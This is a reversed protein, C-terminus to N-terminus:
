QFHQTSGQKNVDITSKYKHKQKLFLMPTLTAVVEKLPTWIFNIAFVKNNHFCHRGLNNQHHWLILLWAFGLSELILNWSDLNLIWSELILKWSDLNLFLWSWSELSLIWSVLSSEIFILELFNKLVNLLVLLKWLIM